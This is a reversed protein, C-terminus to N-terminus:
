SASAPPEPRFKLWERYPIGLWVQTIETGEDVVLVSHTRYHDGPGEEEGTALESCALPQQRSNRGGYQVGDDGLLVLECPPTGEVKIPDIELSVKWADSGDPVPAPSNYGLAVEDVPELGTVRVRFHWTQHQGDFGELSNNWELWEGIRATDAVRRTDTEWWYPKIRYSSAALMLALALPTAVLWWRNRRWWSM